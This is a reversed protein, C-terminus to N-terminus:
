NAVVKSHWRYVIHHTPFSSAFSFCERAVVKSMSCYKKTTTAKYSTHYTYTDIGQWLRLFPDVHDSFERGKKAM